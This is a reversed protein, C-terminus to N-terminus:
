EDNKRCTIVDRYNDLTRTKATELLGIQAMQSGSSVREIAGSADEYLIIYAEIQSARAAMEGLRYVLEKQQYLKM